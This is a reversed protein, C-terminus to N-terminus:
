CDQVAKLAADFSLGDDDALTAIWAAFVLADKKSIAGRPPRLMVISDGQVGVMFKNMTDIAEGEITAM